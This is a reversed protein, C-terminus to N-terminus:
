LSSNLLSDQYDEAQISMEFIEIEKDITYFPDNIGQILSPSVILMISCIMVLETIELWTYPSRIARGKKQENQEPIQSLIAVLNEKSPSVNEMYTSLAQELATNHERM